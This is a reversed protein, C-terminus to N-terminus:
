FNRPSGHTLTDIDGRVLGIDDLQKDSLGNLANRTQRKMEWQRVMRPLAKLGSLISHVTPASGTIRSDFAISAM